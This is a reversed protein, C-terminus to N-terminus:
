TIVRDMVMRSAQKLITMSEMKTINTKLKSLWLILRNLIQACRIIEFKFNKYFWDFRRLFFRRDGHLFIFRAVLVVLQIEDVAFVVQRIIKAVFRIIQIIGVLDLLGFINLVQSVYNGVLWILLYRKFQFQFCNIPSSHPHGDVNDSYNLM